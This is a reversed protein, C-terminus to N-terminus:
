ASELSKLRTIIAEVKTRALENKEILRSKEAVLNSQQAKLSANEVKLHDTMDILESLKAELGALEAAYQELIKKNNDM